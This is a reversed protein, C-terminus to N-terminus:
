PGPNEGGLYLIGAEQLLQLFEQTQLQDRTIAGLSFSEGGPGGLATYHELIGDATAQNGEATLVVMPRDLNAVSLLQADVADTEGRLWDGGGLLVLWGEGDLWRLPGQQPM